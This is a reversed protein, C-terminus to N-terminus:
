SLIFIERDTKLAGSEFFSGQLKQLARVVFLSGVSKEDANVM